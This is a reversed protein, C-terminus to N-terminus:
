LTLPPPRRPPDTERSFPERLPYLKVAHAEPMPYKFALFKNGFFVADDNALARQSSPVNGYIAGPLCARVVSVHPAARKAMYWFFRRYSRHKNQTKAGAPIYFWDRFSEGVAANRANFIIWYHNFEGIFQVQKCGFM